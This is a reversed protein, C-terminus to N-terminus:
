VLVCILSHHYLSLNNTHLCHGAEPVHTSGRSGVIPRAKTDSVGYRMFSVAMAGCMVPQPTNKTPLLRQLQGNSQCKGEKPCTTNEDKLDRSMGFDSIYSLKNSTFIEIYTRQHLCKASIAILGQLHQQLLSPYEQSSHRQPYLRERLPLGNGSCDPSQLGTPISSSLSCTASWSQQTSYLM